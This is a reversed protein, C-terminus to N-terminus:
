LEFDGNGHGFFIVVKDNRFYTMAIDLQNDHNFDAVAVFYPLSESGTSYTRQRGFTGNDIGFLVWMNNARSNAVVIDLRNDSNFDALAISVPASDYGTSYFM